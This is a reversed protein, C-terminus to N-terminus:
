KEGCWYKNKIPFNDPICGIKRYIDNRDVCRYTGDGNNSVYGDKVWRHFERNLTQNPTEGKHGAWDRLLVANEKNTIVNSKFNNDSTLYLILVGVINRWTPVFETTREGTKKHSIIEIEDLITQEIKENEVEDLTMRGNRKGNILLHQINTLKSGKGHGGQFRDPDLVALHHIIVASPKFTKNLTDIYEDGIVAMPLYIHAIDKGPYRRLARGVTQVVEIENEIPSGFFIGGVWPLNAGERYIKVSCLVGRGADLLIKEKAARQLTSDKAIISVATVGHENLQKAVARAQKQSNCTYILYKDRNDLIIRELAQVHFEIETMKADGDYDLTCVMFDVLCKEIHIGWGLTKTVSRTFYKLTKETPTATFGIRNQMDTLNKMKSDLKHVEDVIFFTEFLLKKNKLIEILNPLSINTTAIVVQRKKQRRGRIFRSLIEQDTTSILGYIQGSDFAIYDYSRDNNQQKITELNQSNIKLYPSVVVIIEITLFTFIWNILEAIMVTKGYGMPAQFLLSIDEGCKIIERIDNTIKEMDDEQYPRLKLVDPKKIEKGQMLDLAQEGLVSLQDHLVIFKMNENQNIVLDPSVGDYSTIVYSINTFVDKTCNLFGIFRSIHTKADTLNGNNGTFKCQICGWAGDKRYIIDAGIDRGNLGFREKNNVDKWLYIEDPNIFLKMFSICFTEYLTGKQKPSVIQCLQEFFARVRSM